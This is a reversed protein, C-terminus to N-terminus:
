LAFIYHDARNCLAVMILSHQYLINCVLSTVAMKTINKGTKALIQNGHCRGKSGQLCFHRRRRGSLNPSSYFFFFISLFWLAFIYHDARHCLAVVFFFFFSLFWLAFYLPRGYEMPRGYNIHMYKHLPASSCTQETVVYLHM